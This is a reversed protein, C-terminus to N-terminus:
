CPADIPKLKSPFTPGSSVIESLFAPEFSVIERSSISALVLVAGMLRGLFTWAVACRSLPLDLLLIWVVRCAFAVRLAFAVLRAFAVDRRVFFALSRSQRLFDRSCLDM